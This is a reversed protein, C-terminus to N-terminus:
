VYIQAKKWLNTYKTVQFNFIENCIVCVKIKQLFKTAQKCATENQTYQAHTFSEILFIGSINWAFLLKIVSRHEAHSIKQKL